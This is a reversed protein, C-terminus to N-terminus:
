FVVGVFVTSRDIVFLCSRALLFLRASRTTNPQVVVVVYPAERASLFSPDAADLPQQVASFFKSQSHSHSDDDDDDDNNNNNNDIGLPSAFCFRVAFVHRITSTSTQQARNPCM